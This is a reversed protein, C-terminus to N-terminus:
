EDRQELMADAIEYAFKASMAFQTSSSGEFAIQVAKAAFYDRLSMGAEGENVFNAYKSPLASTDHNHQHM